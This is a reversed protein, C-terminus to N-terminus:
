HKHKYLNKFPPIDGYKETYVEDRDVEIGPAVIGIRVKGGSIEVPGFRLLVPQGAALVCDLLQRLTPEDLRAVIGEEEGRALVLM